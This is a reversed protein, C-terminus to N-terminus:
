DRTSSHTAVVVSVLFTCYLSLSLSLSLSISALSKTDWWLCSFNCVLYCLFIFQSNLEGFSFHKIISEHLLFLYFHFVFFFKREKGMCHSSSPNGYHTTLYPMMADLVFDYIPTTGNYDLYICSSPLNAGKTTDKENQTSRRKSNKQWWWGSGGAYSTVGAATVVAASLCMATTLFSGGNDNGSGVTTRSSSM